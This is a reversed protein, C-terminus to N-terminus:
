DTVKAKTLTQGHKEVTTAANWNFATAIPTATSGAGFSTGGTASATGSNYRSRSYSFQQAPRTAKLMTFNPKQEAIHNLIVKISDVTNFKSLLHERATKGIDSAKSPQSVVQRMASRLEPIEIQAWKHGQQPANVLHSNILYASNHSTFSTTGSWNTVIVPLAMSMSEMIPLGWGEGHTATVFAQAAKYMHPMRIYPVFRELLIVKPLLDQSVGSSAIYRNKWSRFEELNEPAMSSRIYLNVEKSQTTSNGFEEYFAQLLSQWDKRAEWKFVSIFNFTAPNPLTEPSTLTIGGNSSSSSSSSHDLKVIEPDFHHLDIAEPVIVIKSVNVGAAHFSARNFDSPVYVFDVNKLPEIWDSPISDTEFMSRGILMDPPNYAYATDYRRPDKHMIAVLKDSSVDEREDRHALIDLTKVTAEPFGIKTLEQRCATADNVVKVRIHKQLEMILNVAETTFGLIQGSGCDMSWSVSVDKLQWQSKLLESLPEAWKELFRKNDGKVIENQVYDGNLIDDHLVVQGTVMVSVSPVYLTTKGFVRRSRLSLDADLYTHELATDFGHLEKWHSANIM